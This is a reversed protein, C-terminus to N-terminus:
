KMSYEIKLKEANSSIKQKDHMIVIKKMETM